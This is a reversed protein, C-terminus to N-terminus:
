PLTYIYEYTQGEGLRGGPDDITMTIRIMKPKPDLVATPTKFSLSVLWLVPILALVIVVLNAVGWGARQRGTLNVTAM